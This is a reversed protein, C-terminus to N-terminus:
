DRNSSRQWGFIDDNKQNKNENTRHCLTHTEKVCHAHAHMHEYGIRINEERGGEEYEYEHGFEDDLIRIMRYVCVSLVCVDHVM